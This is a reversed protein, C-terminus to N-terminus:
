AMVRLHLGVAILGLTAAAALAPWLAMLAGVCALGIAAVALSLSAWAPGSPPARSLAFMPVLVYSFGLALLGMFGFAALIFHAFAGAGHDPLVTRQMNLILLAAALVLGVLAGLAAWGHAAVLPMSRARRLNDAIAAAFIAL